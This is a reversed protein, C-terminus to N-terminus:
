KEAAGARCHRSGTRPKRFRTKLASFIVNERGRGGRPVRAPAAGPM